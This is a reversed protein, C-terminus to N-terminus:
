IVSAKAEHLYEGIATCNKKWIASLRMHNAICITDVSSNKIYNQPAIFM